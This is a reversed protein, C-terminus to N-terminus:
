DQTETEISTHPKPVKRNEAWSVFWRALYVSAVALIMGALVDILWHIGLYMTSVVISLVFVASIWLWHPYHDRTWWAFLLVTMAMSTHLSPFVNSSTNIAATLTMIEPFQEFMPQGVESPLARRPGYAIFLTYFVTGAGYNIMYAVLLEKLYRQTPLLLYAVIPFVLVFAFGFVYAFSFYWVAAEMPLAAQLQGVLGGELAVLTDTINVGIVGSLTTTLQHALKNLLYVVGLGVLYPGSERIQYRLEARAESISDLGIVIVSTAMTMLVVGSVVILLITILDM